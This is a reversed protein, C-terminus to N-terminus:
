LLDEDRVGMLMLVCKKDATSYAIECYFDCSPKVRTAIYEHLKEAENILNDTEVVMMVHPVELAEEMGAEVNLVGDGSDTTQYGLATLINVIKRMTPQIENIYM